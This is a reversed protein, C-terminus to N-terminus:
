SQMGSTNRCQIKCFSVSLTVAGSLLSLVDAPRTPISSLDHTFYNRAHKATKMVDEVFFKWKESSKEIKLKEPIKEAVLRAKEGIEKEKVGFMSALRDILYDVVKGAILACALYHGREYEEVAQLLHEKLAINCVIGDEAEKRLGKLKDLEEFSLKPQKLQTELFEIAGGCNM